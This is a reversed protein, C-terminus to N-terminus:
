EEVGEYGPAYSLVPVINNKPRIKKNQFCVSHNIFDSQQRNHRDIYGWLKKENGKCDM